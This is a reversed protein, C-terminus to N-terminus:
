HATYLWLASCATHSSYAIVEAYIQSCKLNANMKNLLNWNWPEILFHNQKPQNQDSGLPNQPCCSGVRDRRETARPPSEPATWFCSSVNRPMCTAQCHGLVCGNQRRSGRGTALSASVAVHKCFTFLGKSWLAITQSSQNITRLVPRSVPSRLSLWDWSHDQACSFLWMPLRMKSRRSCPHGVQVSCETSHLSDSGLIGDLLRRNRKTSQDFCGLLKRRQPHPFLQGFSNFLLGWCCIWM